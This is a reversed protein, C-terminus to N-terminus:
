PAPLPYTRSPRPHPIPPSTVMHTPVPTIEYDMLSHEDESSTDLQSQENDTTNNYHKHYQFEISGTSFHRPIDLEEHATYLEEMDYDSETEITDPKCM